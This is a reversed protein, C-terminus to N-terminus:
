EALGFVVHYVSSPYTGVYVWPGGIRAWFRCTDHISLISANDTTAEKWDSGQTPWRGCLTWSQHAPLCGMEAAIHWEAGEVDRVFHWPQDSETVGKTSMSSSMCFM